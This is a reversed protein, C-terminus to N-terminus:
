GHFRGRICHTFEHGIHQPRYTKAPDVLHITCRPETPHVLGFGFLEEGTAPKVDLRAAERQLADITPHTVVTVEVRDRVFETREYRYGDAAGDCGALLALAALALRRIM